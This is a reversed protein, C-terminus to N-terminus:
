QPTPLIQKDGTRIHITCTVALGREDTSGTTALKFAHLKEYVGPCVQIVLVAVIVAGQVM